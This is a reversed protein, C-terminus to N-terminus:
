RLYPLVLSHPLFFFFGQGSERAPGRRSLAQSDKPQPVHFYEQKNEFGIADLDFCARQRPGTRLSECARVGAARKRDEDMQLRRPLVLSAERDACLPVQKRGRNATNLTGYFRKSLITERKGNRTRTTQKHYVSM